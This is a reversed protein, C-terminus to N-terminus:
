AFVPGLMKSSFVYKQFIQRTSEEGLTAIGGQADGAMTNLLHPLTYIDREFNRRNEDLRLIFSRDHWDGWQERAKEQLPTRLLWRLYDARRSYEAGQRGARELAFVRLQSSSAMTRLCRFSLGLGFSEKLRWLDDPVAWAGPGPAAIRLAEEEKQM